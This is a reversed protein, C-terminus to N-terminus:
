FNLWAFVFHVLIEYGPQESNMVPVCINGCSSGVSMLPLYILTRGQQIGLGFITLVLSVFM